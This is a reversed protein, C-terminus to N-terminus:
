LRRLCSIWLKCFTRQLSLHFLACADLLHFPLSATASIFCFLTYTQLLRFFVVSVFFLISRSCVKDFACLTSLNQSYIDSFSFLKLLYDSMTQYAFRLWHINYMPLCIKALLNKYIFLAWRTWFNAIPDPKQDTNSLWSAGGRLRSQWDEELTDWGWAQEFPSTTTATQPLWNDCFRQRQYQFPFSCKLFRPCIIKFHHM